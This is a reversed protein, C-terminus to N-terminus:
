EKKKRKRNLRFHWISGLVLMLSGFYKLSRGQDVNVALTSNYSGDNNESYSAQYFTYGELKFPNNMYIHAKEMSGKNFVKVYSEFSAPNNTGPDREMKFESLSVEFPLIVKEPELSMLFEENNFRLALPSYNTVWYEKGHIEIQIAKVDGSILRGRKQIPLISEPYNIPLLENENKLMSIEAGMWPLQYPNNLQTFHIERWDDSNKDYYIAQEGFLALYPTKKLESKDIIEVDTLVSISINRISNYGLCQNTIKNLTIINNKKFCEFFSKPFYRFNLPGMALHDPFDNIAEPHLSMTIMEKAFSNKFLYQTSSNFESKKYDNVPSAWMIKSKAYPIFKLIKINHITENIDTARFSYPLKYDVLIAKSKLSRLRFIDTNLSVERSSENINLNMQGDVGAIFTIVAGIGIILLGSHITYFGYLRKKPPLRLTAAFLISLCMFFQVLIFPTTKYLARNAFDAGFFSEIFTGAIMCITFISLIIVAFKLSGIYKEILSLM